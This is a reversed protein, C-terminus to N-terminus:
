DSSAGFSDADGFGINDPTIPETPKHPVPIRRGAEQLTKLISKTAEDEIMGCITHTARAMVAALSELSISYGRKYFKFVRFLSGAPAEPRMPACYTLRRELVDMYFIPSCASVFQGGNWWMGAKAITFDFSDVAEEPTSFTWKYIIQVAPYGPLCITYSQKSIHPLLLTPSSACLADSLLNCTERDNVWVDIDSPKEGAVIARIFGGAVSARSGFVKLQEVLAPPMAAVCKEVDIQNLPQLNM